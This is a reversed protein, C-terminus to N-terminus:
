LNRLTEGPKPPLAFVSIEPVVPGDKGQFPGVNATVRCVGNKIGYIKWKRNGGDPFGLGCADSFYLIGTSTKRASWVQRPMYTKTTSTKLFRKRAMEVYWRATPSLPGLRGLRAAARLTHAPMSTLTTCSMYDLWFDAPLRKSPFKSELKLFSDMGQVTQDETGCELSALFWEPRPDNPALRHARQLSTTAADFAGKINLNYAYSAVTGALLFLEENHPYSLESAKLEKLCTNLTAAVKAEPVAYRWQPNWQEAMPDIKLAAEYAERVQPQKPLQATRIDRLRAQAPIAVAAIVTVLLWGCVKRSGQRRSNEIQYTGQRAM